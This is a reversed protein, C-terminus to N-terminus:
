NIIVDLVIPVAVGKNSNAKFGMGSDSYIIDKPPILLDSFGKNLRKMFNKEESNRVEMIRETMDEIEEDSYIVCIHDTGPHVSQLATFESPITMSSSTNQVITKKLPVIRAGDLKSIDVGKPFHLEAKNKSDISFVYVYSNPSMNSGKLQYVDRIRWDPLVYSSGSFVPVAEKFIPSDTDEDFDAPFRFAFKGQLEIPKKVDKLTKDAKAIVPSALPATKEEDVIAAYGYKAYKAYDDYKVWIFGNDAWNTGWSNMIEFAKKYDNYGVVCMSHGGKSEPSAASVDLFKTGKKALFFSEPMNMGIVVPRGEALAKKTLFIKQDETARKHFITMYDKIQYKQAKKKLRSDPMINCSTVKHDFENALCDGQTKLLKMGDSIKAGNYCGDLKIQNFIYFASLVNTNRVAIDKVEDRMSLMITLANSCSYGVCSGDNGQSRPTPAYDRMSVKIPLEDGKAGPDFGEPMAEEAARQESADFVAGMPYTQASLSNLLITCAILTLSIYKKM